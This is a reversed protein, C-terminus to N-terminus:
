KKTLLLFQFFLSRFFVVILPRNQTRTMELWKILDKDFILFFDRHIEQNCGLHRWPYFKNISNDFGVKEVPTGINRGIFRM